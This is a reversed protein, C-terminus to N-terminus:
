KCNDIKRVLEVPIREIEAVHSFATTATSLGTWGQQDQPKQKGHRLLRKGANVRLRGISTKMSWGPCGDTILRSLLSESQVRLVPCLKIKTETLLLLVAYCWRDPQRIVSAALQWRGFSLQRLGCLWAM